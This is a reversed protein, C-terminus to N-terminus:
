KGAPAPTPKGPEPPASAAATRAAERKAKLEKAKEVMQMKARKEKYDERAERWAFTNAKLLMTEALYTGVGFSAFAPLVVSLAVLILLWLSSMVQFPGLVPKPLLGAYVVLAMLAALVVVFFGLLRFTGRVKHFSRELDDAFEAISAGNAEINEKWRDDWLLIKRRLLVGFVVIAFTICSTLFTLILFGIAAGIYQNLM